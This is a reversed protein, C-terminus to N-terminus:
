PILPFYRLIKCPTRKKKKTGGSESHEDIEDSNEVVNKSRSEGCIPCEDLDAFKGRFLVCDNVCAHIKIYTLGLDRIVKRAKEYTDPICHGPPFGDSFLELSKGTSQNSWGSMCKLQFLRVMFSLKTLSSGPALEQQAEKLLDFFKKASENPEEKDNGSCAGRIISSVLNTAASADDLGEDNLVRDDNNRSSQANIKEKVFNEDFGKNLLDMQVKSKTKFVVGRCRSCPCAAIEAAYTGEFISNIYKDLGAQWEASLRSLSMWSWDDDNHAAM